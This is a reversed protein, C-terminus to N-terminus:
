IETKIEKWCVSYFCEMARAEIELPHKYYGVKNLVNVYWRLNQLYHTYEHIVARIIDKVTYTYNRFVYLTNTEFDYMGYAPTHKDGLTLVRFKFTGHRHKKVGLNEECWKVTESVIKRIYPTTMDETSTKLYLTNM